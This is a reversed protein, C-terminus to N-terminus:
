ITMEEPWWMMFHYRLKSEVFNKSIPVKSTGRPVNTVGFSGLNWFRIIFSDGYSTNYVMGEQRCKLDCCVEALTCQKNRDPTKRHMFDSSLSRDRRIFLFEFKNERPIGEGNLKFQANTQSSTDLNQKAQNQLHTYWEFRSIEEIIGFTNFTYYIAYINWPWVLM